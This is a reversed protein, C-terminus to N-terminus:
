LGEELYGVRVTTGSTIGYIAPYSRDITLTQLPLIPFGTTTTVTADTGIYVTVTSSPNTIVLSYRFRAPTAVILTASGTVNIQAPTAITGISTKVWVPNQAPGQACVYSVLGFVILIVICLIKKM